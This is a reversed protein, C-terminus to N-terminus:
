KKAYKAAKEVIEKPYRKAIAQTDLLAECGNELAKNYDKLEQANVRAWREYLFWGVAVTAVIVICSQM